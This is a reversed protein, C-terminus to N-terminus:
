GDVAIKYEELKKYLTTRHIQLIRAAENKNGAAKQMAATIALKEAEALPMPPLVLADPDAAPADSTTAAAATEVDGPAPNHTAQLDGPFLLLGREIANTQTLLCGREVVNRFERVNGPWHYTKLAAQAEASFGDIRKGFKKSYIAIFHAALADIDELRDRLPPLVLPVVNLRYFLDMRFTGETVMQALHQNSAAIIAVNVQIDGTGGIRRFRQEEIVKLLKAQLSLDMDGIEDLFLIGGDAIEFLGIKDEKADTFAGKRHGFLESEILTPPFASCNVEVFPKSSRNGMKHVTRAFAGKGTGTEGQILLCSFDSQSILRATDLTKLMLPCSAIIEGEQVTGTELRTLQKLASVERSLDLHEVANELTNHLLVTEVPKTLFDYAGAKICEVATSVEGYATMIIVLLEPYAEQWKKLLTRGDTDPLMMDLIAIHYAGEALAKEAGKGDEVLTVGFRDGALTDRLAMAVLLNDEIILVSVNSM